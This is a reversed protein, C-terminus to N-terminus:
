ESYLTAGDVACTRGYAPLVILRGFQDTQIDGLTEIEGTPCARNSEEFHMSPFSVPYDEVPKITGGSGDTPTTTADFGLPGASAGGLARPGADIVWTTRLTSLYAVDKELKPYGISQRPEAHSHTALKNPNRLDVEQPKGDFERKSSDSSYVELGVFDNTGFWNPKKNALHVTWVIDTVTRGDPLKFGVTVQTGPDGKPEPYTGTNENYCFIKFRAAQRKMAGKADRLDADTIPEDSDPNASDPQLPIGGALGNSVTGASTEPQLYFDVSEGVRAFGISPHVRFIPDSM